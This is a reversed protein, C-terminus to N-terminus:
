RQKSSYIYTNLYEDQLKRHKIIHAIVNADLKSNNFLEYEGNKNNYIFDDTIIDFNKPDYSYGPEGSFMNIGYYPINTEVGFLNLITRYIDTNSKTQSLTTNITKYDITKAINGTPDYFIVPINLLLKRYELDSLKRNYLAEYSGKSLANGHDGYLVFVTNKLYRDSNPNSVDMLFDYLFKDNFKVQNLYNELQYYTGGLNFDYNEFGLDKSLDYFPNHPTITEIFSFSNHNNNHSDIASQVAWNLNSDDSIWYNLYKEPYKNKPYLSEFSELGRFDDIHYLGEHLNNHNYFNENTGNYSYSVYEELHEGLSPLTFDYTDYEWAITMDGTPYFGTFFAFEADSTNGIGVTTYVNDFYFCNPDNFLKNFYPTVEIDNFKSNYCLTMTSEMQIVFLNKGKLAGTQLDINSYINNDIINTYSNINKNLVNLELYEDTPTENEDININRNDVRFIFEAIYYNYVGAHQCGYQAYDTSFDWNKELSYQYYRYSSFSICILMSFTCIIKKISIYITEKSLTKKSKIFIILMTVFPLISVIRYYIFLEYLWDLVVNGGFGGSPSKFLTFNFLSFALKYGKTYYQLAIIIINLVATVCLLFISTKKENKLTLIGILYLIALVSFNGFISFIESFFTHKFTTIYQNLTSTTLFYTNAINLIFYIITIWLFAHKKVFDCGEDMLM